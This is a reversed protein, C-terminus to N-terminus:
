GVRAGQVLATHRMSGTLFDGTVVWDHVDQLWNQASTCTVWYGLLMERLVATGFRAKM